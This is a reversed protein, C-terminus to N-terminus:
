TEKFVQSNAHKGAAAIDPTSTKLERNLYSLASKEYKIKTTHDTELSNHWFNKM